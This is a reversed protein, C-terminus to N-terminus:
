YRTNSDYGKNSHGTQIVSQYFGIANMDITSPRNFFETVQSASPLLAFSLLKNDKIRYLDYLLVDKEPPTFGVCNKKNFVSTPTNLKWNDMDCLKNQNYHKVVAKSLLTLTFVEPIYNFEYGDGFKDRIQYRAVLNVTVSKVACGPKEYMQSIANMKGDTFELHFISAHRGLPLCESKWSGELAPKQAELTKTKVPDQGCQSFLAM